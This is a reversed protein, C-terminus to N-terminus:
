RHPQLYEDDSGAAPAFRACIAIPTHGQPSLASWFETLQRVEPPRFGSVISSFYTLKFTVASGEKLEEVPGHLSTAYRLHGLLPGRFVQSLRGPAEKM